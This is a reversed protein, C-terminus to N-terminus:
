SVRAKRALYIGAAVTFLVSVVTTGIVLPTSVTEIDSFEKAILYGAVGGAIGSGVVFMQQAVTTAVRDPIQAVLAM